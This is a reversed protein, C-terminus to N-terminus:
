STTKGSVQARTAEVLARQLDNEMSVMAVAAQARQARGEQVIKIGEEITNITQENVRKLTDIEAVGREGEKRAAVTSDHLMEANKLLIQNTTDDIDKALRSARDQDFLTVTLVFQSKWIPVVTTVMDQIREVLTKDTDQVVRIQPAMTLIIHASIRLNGVRRDLRDHQDQMDKVKNAMEQKDPGDPMSEYQAQAEVLQKSMRELVLEGAAVSVLVHEYFDQNAEYLRDLKEVDTLLTTRSVMLSSVTRDILTQVAEFKDIRKEVSDILRGIIPLSALFGGFSNADVDRIKSLLDALENGIPGTDRAKVQMLLPDVSDSLRKQADAGFTTVASSDSTDLSKAIQQAQQKGADDLRDYAVLGIPSAPVPLSSAQTLASSSLGSAPNTTADTM